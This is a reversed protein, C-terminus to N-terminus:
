VVMFRTTGIITGSDNRVAGAGTDPVLIDNRVIGQAQLAQAVLLSVIHYTDPHPDPLGTVEGYVSKVVTFGAVPALNDYTQAVRATVVNGQDDLLTPVSLVIEKKDLSYLTFTHPTLNVFTTM